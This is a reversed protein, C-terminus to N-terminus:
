VRSWPLTNSISWSPRLDVTHYFSNEFVQDGQGPFCEKGCLLWKCTTSSWSRWEIFVAFPTRRHVVLVSLHSSLVVDSFQFQFTTFCSTETEFENVSPSFDELAEVGHVRCYRAETTRQMANSELRLPNTMTTVMTVNFRRAFYFPERLWNWFNSFRWGTLCQYLISKKPMNHKENHQKNAWIISFLISKSM